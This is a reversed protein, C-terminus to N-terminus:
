NSKIEFVKYDTEIHMIRVLYVKGQQFGTFQGIVVDRFGYPLDIQVGAPIDLILTYDDGVNSQFNLVSSTKPQYYQIAGASSDIIYTDLFTISDKYEHLLIIKSLDDYFKVYDQNRILKGNYTASGIARYVDGDKAGVPPTPVFPPLPVVNVVETLILSWTAGDLLQYPEIGGNPFEIAVSDYKGIEFNAWPQNSLDYIVGNELDVAVVLGEETDAMTDVFQGNVQYVANTNSSDYGLSFTDYSTRTGADYEAKESAKYFKFYISKGNTMSPLYQNFYIQTGEYAISPAHYPNLEKGLEIEGGNFYTDDGNDVGTIFIYVNFRENPVYDNVNLFDVIELATIDTRRVRLIKGETGLSMRVKNGSTLPTNTSSFHKSGIIIKSSDEPDLRITMREILDGDGRVVAIDNSQTVVIELKEIRDVFDVSTAILDITKKPEISPLKYVLESQSISTPLTIKGNAYTDPLSTTFTDLTVPSESSSLMNFTVESMQTLPDVAGVDLYSSIIPEVVEPDPAVRDDDLLWERVVFDEPTGGGGEQQPLYEAPVKGQENLTVPNNPTNYEIGIDEPTLVVNGTKNNVSEVPFVIPEPTGGGGGGSGNIGAITTKRSLQSM